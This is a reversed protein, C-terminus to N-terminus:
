HKYYYVKNVIRWNNEIKLLSLYDTFRIGM